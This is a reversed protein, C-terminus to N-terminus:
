RGISEENSDGQTQTGTRICITEKGGPQASEVGGGGGRSRGGVNRREQWAWRGGARSGGITKGNCLCTHIHTCICIAISFKKFQAFMLLFAFGSTPPVKGPLPSHRRIPAHCKCPLFLYLFFFYYLFVLLNSKDGTMPHGIQKEKNLGPSWLSALRELVATELTYIAFKEKPVLTSRPTRRAVFGCM